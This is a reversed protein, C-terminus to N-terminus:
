EKNLVHIATLILFFPSNNYGWKNIRSSIDPKEFQIVGELPLNEQTVFVTEQNNFPSSTSTPQEAASSDVSGEAKALALSLPRSNSANKRTGTGVIFKSKSTSFPPSNPSTLKLYFSFQRTSLPPQSLLM